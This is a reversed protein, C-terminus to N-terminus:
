EHIGRHREKALNITLQLQWVVVESIYCNENKVSQEDM